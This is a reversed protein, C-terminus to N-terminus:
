MHHQKTQLGDYLPVRQRIREHDLAILNITDAEFLWACRENFEGGAEIRMRWRAQITRKICRNM